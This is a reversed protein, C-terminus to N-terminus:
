GKTQFDEFSYGLMKKWKKRRRKKKWDIYARKWTSWRSEDYVNWALWLKKYLKKIRKKIKM